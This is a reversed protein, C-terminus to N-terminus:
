FIDEPKIEQDTSEKPGHRINGPQPAHETLFYEFIANDQQPSALKGTVPDIKLNIVGEPQDLFREPLDALAVAMFDIWIPLPTNSGYHNAGLPQHNPFGVWVTTVVDPNYGNFWTDAADNTTGTKGALDNRKLSRARRGTGKLIVDKLMDHMIFANREDIVRIAPIIPFPEEDEETDTTVEHDNTDTDAFLDALNTPEDFVTEARDPQEPEPRNCPDCVQPYSAQFVIEGDLNLVKDVIHPQVLWGGNAFVAYVAAMDVPTIAMTGGGIALQTNRPFTATDFGFRRVYDLVDGAGVEILVRMSILNISRYLAERLRTPGNFRNNDNVPRYQSELLSDDFVLPADMFISAPTVGHHLAASYVFPKFGSGPQRAAQLAHNYQNMGFDFGGVLALVAGTQPELSVLAGQIDPLQALRWQPVIEGDDTTISPMSQLRILHGPQVVKAVSKPTPGREDVEVYARAWAVSLLDLVINQGDTILVQAETESVATVIGPLLDSYVATARLREEYQVIDFEGLRAEPGRYGHRRDYSMLGKHLAQKAATQLNGRITTFVEYGGSYLDPLRNVLQSRVWEAPFPAAVDLDRAYIRATIPSDLATQYQEATISQQDLMRALVTNRRKLAREPGNIPNGASPAQPIGALMALQALDLEV